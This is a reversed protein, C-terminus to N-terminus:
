PTHDHQQEKDSRDPTSLTNSRSTLPMGLRPAQQPLRRPMPLEDGQVQAPPTVPHQATNRPLLRPAAHGSQESPEARTVQRAAEGVAYPKQQRSRGIRKPAGTRPSAPAGARGGSVTSIDRIQEAEGETLDPKGLLRQLQHRHSPAADQVTLAILVTNKGERLDDLTSKGIAAPDGFVGLLDDRLQFAEGLPLAYATLTDMLSQDACALHLLEDSWVLALDGILIAAREGLREAALAARRTSPVATHRDYHAAQSRHVTPRGRGTASRDMVDDHILAFAHFLEPSAALHHVARLPGTAGAAHWGTIALLPRFANAARACSM